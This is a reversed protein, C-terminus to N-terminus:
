LCQSAVPTAEMALPPRGRRCRSAAAGGTEWAAGPEVWMRTPAARVGALPLRGVAEAQAQILQAGPQADTVQGAVLSSDLTPETSQSVDAASDDQDDPLTNGSDAIKSKDAATDKGDVAGKGPLANKDRKLADAGTSSVDRSQQAYVSSFGSAKDNAAQLPKDPQSAAARSLTTATSAQLLPNSAVPM